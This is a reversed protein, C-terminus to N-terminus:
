SIQIFTTKASGNILPCEIIKEPSVTGVNVTLRTILPIRDDNPMDKWITNMVREATVIENQEDLASNLQDVKLLLVIVANKVTPNFTDCLFHFAKIAKWPIDQVNEVVLVEHEELPSVIKSYVQSEEDSESTDTMTRWNSGNVWLIKGTNSMAKNKFMTSVVSALCNSTPTNNEDHMLLLVFPEGPKRLRQFGARLKSWLRKNQSPFQKKHLEVENKFCNSDMCQSSSSIGSIISSYLNEVSNMYSSCLIGFIGFILILIPLRYNLLIKSYLEKFNTCLEVKPDAFNDKISSRSSINKRFLIDWESNLCAMCKSPKRSKHNILFLECEVINFTDAYLKAHNIFSISYEDIPSGCKECSPMYPATM